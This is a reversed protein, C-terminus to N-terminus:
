EVRLRIVGTEKLDPQRIELTVPSGGAPTATVTHL